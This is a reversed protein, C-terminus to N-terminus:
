WLCKFKMSLKPCRSGLKELLMNKPKGWPNIDLDLLIQENISKNSALVANRLGRRAERYTNASWTKDIALGKKNVRTLVRRAHICAKRATRIEENWWLNPKKGKPNRAISISKVCAEQIVEM